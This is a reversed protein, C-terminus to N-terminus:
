QNGPPPAREEILNLAEGYDIDDPIALIFDSIGSRPISSPGLGLSESLGRAIESDYNSPVRHLIELIRSRVGSWGTRISMSSYDLWEIRDYDIAHKITRNTPMFKAAYKLTMDMTLILDEEAHLKKFDSLFFLPTLDVSPLLNKWLRLESLRRSNFFSDLDVKRLRNRDLFLICLYENRALPKLDIIDLQNKHLYLERLQSCYRLPTLDISSLKNDGISLIKLESCHSLPGLDISDIDNNNLWIRELKSLNSIPTLDLSIIGKKGLKLINIDKEFSSEVMGKKTEFELTVLEM